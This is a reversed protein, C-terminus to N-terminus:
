ENVSVVIDNPQKNPRRIHNSHVEKMIRYMSVDSNGEHTQWDRGFIEYLTFPISLSFLLSQNKRVCTLRMSNQILIRNLEHNQRASCIHVIYM